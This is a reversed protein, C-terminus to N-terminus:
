LISHPDVSEAPGNARERNGTNGLGAILGAPLGTLEGLGMAMLESNGSFAARTVWWPARVFDRIM